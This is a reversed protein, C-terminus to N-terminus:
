CLVDIWSNRDDRFGRIMDKAAASFESADMILKKLGAVAADFGAQASVDGTSWAEHYSKGLNIFAEISNFLDVRADVLDSHTLHYLWISTTARQQQEIYKPGQRRPEVMGDQRFYLIMTDSAVTPDLLEPREHNCANEDFIRDDPNLLPFHDHKGGSSGTTQDRRKSNCYTCSFRYNQWQFALWWYGHHEPCEAVANKPRFHDVAKDSRDEKSECYWCKGHSLESLASKLETWLSSQKNVESHRKEAHAARVTALAANARTEWDAPLRRRIERLDVYRM